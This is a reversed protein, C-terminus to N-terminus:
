RNNSHPTVDAPQIFHASEINPDPISHALEVSPDPANAAFLSMAISDFIEPVFSHHFHLHDISLGIVVWDHNAECTKNFVDNLNSVTYIQSNDIYSAKM